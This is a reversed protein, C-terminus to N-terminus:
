LVEAAAALNGCMVVVYQEGAMFSVENVWSVTAPFSATFGEGATFTIIADDYGNGLTEVTLSTISGCSYWMGAQCSAIVVEPDALQEKTTALSQKIEAKDAPTWYDV